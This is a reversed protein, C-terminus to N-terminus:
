FVCNFCYPHGLPFCVVRHFQMKSLPTLL